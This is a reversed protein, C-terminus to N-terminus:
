AAPAPMGPALVVPPVRGRVSLLGSLAIAFEAFDIPKTWYDAMGAARARAIDDPMANASLAVCPIAATAPDARLRRLVEFGDFDPLEMDTLVLDPLFDRATDVGSRGDSASRLTLGPFRRIAEEVILVNVPNDEIYLLKGVLRPHGPGVPMASAAARRPPSADRAVDFRVTFESGVGPTSVAGVQGGLREAISKVVALGIGTGEIVSHDMGLRNFPEFLHPLHAPEIGIGTDRVSLLVGGGDAARATIFVDGGDRNYKIANSVLNLVIQRVRTADAWVVADLPGIHLAIHRAQAQSTLLPLAEAVAQQLSVAEIHLKLEGSQLSSLDLVDNILTLLHEGASRIHEIGRRQEPSAHGEDVLLLQSFGLIANLPTRLEHSIRALFKSKAQNERQAAIREQREFESTRAETVDWNVGTQRVFQGAADFTPISRSALWRWQGDPLQIRFEYTASQGSLESRRLAALMPDRDDPHTIALREEVSLATPRPELGRLRFMQDDWFTTGSRPDHLWTGIGAGHAALTVRERAEQLAFEIRKSESIDIAIGYILHEGNRLDMDARSLIWRVTGDTLVVRFEIEFAGRRGRLWALGARRMEAQDAPHVRREVFELFAPPKETPPLDYLEFMRRNWEASDDALNSSWVGLGAARTIADLRRGLEISTRASEIRDTVDLGVGIFGIATGSRDREVTRRTLITRWGGDGHRYRVELDVSATGELARRMADAVAPLDDPHMKARAEAITMGEPRPEEWGLLRSVQRDCHVRGTLLDHRWLAIGSVEMALQLRANAQTLSQAMDYAESDDVMIGIVRAPRGDPGAKVEWQSHITRVVGDIGVVRYRRSYRGPQTISRAYSDNDRDEPHIRERAILHNPTGESPEMDFFRFVHDDWRGEGTRVDREWVGLRGFEQATDLLEALREAERRQRRPERWDRFTFAFGAECGGDFPLCSMRYWPVEDGESGDSGLSVELGSCGTGDALGRRLVALTDPPTAPRLLEAIHRGTSHAAGGVATGFPGNFWTICGSRDTTALLDGGRTLFADIAAEPPRASNQM